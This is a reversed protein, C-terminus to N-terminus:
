PVGDFDTSARRITITGFRDASVILSPLIKIYVLLAGGDVLFTIILSVWVASCTAASQVIAELVKQYLRIRSLLAAEPGSYRLIRWM